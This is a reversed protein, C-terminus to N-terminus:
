QTSGRCQTPSCINWDCPLKAQSLSCLPTGIDATSPSCVLRADWSPLCDWQQLDQSVAMERSMSKRSRLSELAASDLQGVPLKWLGKTAFLGDEYQFFAVKSPVCRMRGHDTGQPFLQIIDLTYGDDSFGVSKWEKGDIYLNVQLVM